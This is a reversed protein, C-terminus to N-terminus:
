VRNLVQERSRKLWLIILFIPLFILLEILCYSLMGLLQDFRTQRSIGFESLSFIRLKFRQQMFPWFLKVGGGYTTTAFDLLGHSLLACGYMLIDRLYSVGFVALAIIVACVAFIISHTPGRHFGWWHLGWVFAFDFDPAVALFGAFALAKWDRSLSVKPRWLAALSAGVLSHAVPLPMFSCSPLRFSSFSVIFSSPHLLPLSSKM